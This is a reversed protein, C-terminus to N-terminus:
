TSPYTKKAAYRQVDRAPIHMEPGATSSSPLKEPVIALKMTGDGRIIRLPVPMDPDLEGLVQELDRATKLTYRGGYAGTKGEEDALTYSFYPGIQYIRDGVALGGRAAPSNPDVKTIVVGDDSTKDYEFGIKVKPQRMVTARGKAGSTYVPQLTKPMLTPPLNGFRQDYDKGVYNKLRQTALVERQRQQERELDRQEKEKVTGFVDLAPKPMATTNLSRSWAVTGDKVDVGFLNQVRESAEKDLALPVSRSYVHVDNPAKQVVFAANQRDILEEVAQATPLGADILGLQKFNSVADDLTHGYFGIAPAGYGFALAAGKPATELLTAVLNQARM